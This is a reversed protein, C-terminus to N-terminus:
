AAVMKRRPSVIEMMREVRNIVKVVDRVRTVVVVAPKKERVKHIGRRGKKRSLGIRVAEMLDLNSSEVPLTRFTRSLLNRIEIQKARWIVTVEIDPRRKLEASTSTAAVNHRLTVEMAYRFISAQRENPHYILIKKKPRM